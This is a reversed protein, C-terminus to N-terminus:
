GKNARARAKARKKNRRKIKHQIAKKKVAQYGEKVKRAMFKMNIIPVAVVFIATMIKNVPPMLLAGELAPKLGAILCVQLWQQDFIAELTALSTYLLVHSFREVLNLVGSIFGAEPDGWKKLYVALKIVLNPGTTNLAQEVVTDATAILPKIATINVAERWVQILLPLTIPKGPRWKIFGDFPDKEGRVTALDQRVDNVFESGKEKIASKLGGTGDEEDEGEEDGYEDDYEADDEADGDEDDDSNLNEEDDDIDASRDRGTGGVAYDDGGNYNTFASSPNYDVDTLHDKNTPFGTQLDNNDALYDEYSYKLSNEPNEGSQVEGFENEGAM